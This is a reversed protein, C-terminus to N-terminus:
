GESRGSAASGALGAEIRPLRTWAIAAGVAAILAATLLPLTIGVYDAASGIAVRHTLIPPQSDAGAAFDSM